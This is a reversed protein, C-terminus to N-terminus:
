STGFYRPNAVRLRDVVGQAVVALVEDAPGATSTRVAAALEAESGVGLSALRASRRRQQAPGLELERGVMALVNASVRAGFGLSGSSREVVQGRLYEEVAELLEVATPRGHLGPQQQAVDPEVAAAEDAVEPALLLLLDWETECVRRGIAALEVSRHLGQLHVSAQTLCIIGWRLTGYLEWWHLVESGVPAGGAAAYAELLQERAGLGAVPADAGFRWARVCFWGLDEAPDGPHVLEWDLVAALGHEDVMLNGLRFDGHVIASGSPEPRNVALWEFALEFAPVPEGISDYLARLSDLVDAPEPAALVQPDVTHLRALAAACQEVLEARAEAYREDRLIRRAITEGQVREMVMGAAGWADPGDADVLVSPVAVGVAAAARMALAERRMAGPASPRGPPDRRLVLEHQAGDAGTADVSWTERSAGGTMRHPPDVRVPGLLPELARELDRQLAGESSGADRRSGGQGESM